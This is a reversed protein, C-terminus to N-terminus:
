AVTATFPPYVREPPLDPSVYKIFGKSAWEDFALPPEDEQATVAIRASHKALYDAREQYVEYRHGKLKVIRSLSFAKMVRDFAEPSFFSDVTKKLRDLVQQRNIGRYNGPHLWTAAYGFIEDDCLLTVDELPVALRDALLVGHVFALHEHYGKTEGHKLATAHAGREEVLNGDHHAVVAWGLARRQAPKDLVESGDVHICLTAM